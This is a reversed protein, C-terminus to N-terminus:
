GTAIQLIWDARKHLARAMFELTFCYYHDDDAAAAAAIVSFEAAGCLCM